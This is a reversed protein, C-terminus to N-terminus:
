QPAKYVIPTITIDSDSEIHITGNIFSAQFTSNIMTLEFIGYDMLGAATGIKVNGTGTSSVIHFGFLSNSSDLVLEHQGGALISISDLNELATPASTKSEIFDFLEAYDTQDPVYGDIWKAKLEELTVNAM